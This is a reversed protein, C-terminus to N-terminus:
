AALAKMGTVAFGALRSDGRCDGAGAGGRASAEAHIPCADTM